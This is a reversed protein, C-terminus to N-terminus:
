INVFHCALTLCDSACAAEGLALQELHFETEDNSSIWCGKNSPRTMNRSQSTTYCAGLLKCRCLLNKNKKTLNHTWKDSICLFLNMQLVAFLYCKVLSILDTRGVYRDVHVCQPICYTASLMAGNFRRNFMWLFPFDPHWPTINWNIIILIKEFIACKWDM